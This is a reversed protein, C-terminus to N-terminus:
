KKIKQGKNGKLLRSIFILTIYLVFVTSDDTYEDWTMVDYVLFDNLIVMQDLFFWVESILCDLDSLGKEIIVWPGLNGPFTTKAFHYGVIINFCFNGCFGWSFVNWSILIQAM